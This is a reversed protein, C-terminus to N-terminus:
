MVCMPRAVVAVFRQIVAIEDCVQSFAKCDLVISPVAVDNVANRNQLLDQSCMDLREMTNMKLKPYKSLNSVYDCSNECFNRLYFDIFLM